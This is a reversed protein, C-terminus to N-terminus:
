ACGKLDGAPKGRLVWELLLLVLYLWLAILIRIVGDVMDLRLRLIICLEQSGCRRMEIGVDKACLL